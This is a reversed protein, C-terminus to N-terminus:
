GGAAPAALGGRGGVRRRRNGPPWFETKTALVASHPWVRTKAAPSPRWFPGFTLKQPLPASLPLSLAVNGAVNGAGSSHASIRRDAATRAAAMATVVAPQVTGPPPPVPPLWLKATGAL